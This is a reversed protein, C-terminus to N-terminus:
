TSSPWGRKLRAFTSKAYDLVKMSDVDYKKFIRDFVLKVERASEVLHPYRAECYIECNSVLLDVDSQFEELSSYKGNQVKDVMKDLHIPDSIIEYYDPCEARSVAGRFPLAIDKHVVQACAFRLLRALEVHPKVCSPCTNTGDSSCNLCWIAPCFKCESKNTDHSSNCSSNCNVCQHRPCIYVGRPIKRMGVCSLHYLMGCGEFECEILTGGDGCCSCIDEDAYDVTVAAERKRKKKKKRMVSNSTTSSRNFSRFTKELAKTKRRNAVIV